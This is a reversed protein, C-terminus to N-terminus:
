LSFGRCVRLWFLVRLQPHHTNHSLSLVSQIQTHVSPSAEQTNAPLPLGPSLLPLLLQSVPQLHVRSDCTKRWLSFVLYLGLKSGQAPVTHQKGKSFCCGSKHCTGIETIYILGGHDIQFGGPSCEQFGLQPSIHMKLVSSCACFLSCEGSAPSHILVHSLWRM